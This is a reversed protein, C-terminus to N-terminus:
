LGECFIEVNDRAGQMAIEAVEGEMKVIRGTASDLGMIGEREYKELREKYRNCRLQDKSLGNHNSREEGRKPAVGTRKFKAIDKALTGTPAFATAHICVGEILTYFEGCGQPSPKKMSVPSGAFAFGVASSMFIAVALKRKLKLEEKVLVYKYVM